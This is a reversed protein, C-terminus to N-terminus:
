SNQLNTFFDYLSSDASVNMKKKLRFKATCISRFTRCTLSAIEKSSLNMSILACLRLENPTLNPFAAELKPFFESNVQEFCLKFETWDKNPSFEKLLHEIENIIKTEKGKPSAYLNLKQIQEMINVTLENFKLFMLANSTLEKNKTELQKNFYEKIGELRIDEGEKSEALENKILKNLRYQRIIRQALIGLSIFSLVSLISLCVIWLNRYAIKKKALELNKENLKKEQLVKYNDFQYKLTLMKGESQEKKLINSLEYSKRLFHIADKYNGERELLQSELKLSNALIIDAKKTKPQNLLETNIKKAEAYQGQRYLANAYNNKIYPILHYANKKEALKLAAAFYQESLSYNKLENYVLALNFNAHILEKGEYKEALVIRYVEIFCDLAEKYQNSGMLAGGLNSYASSQGKLDGLKKYIDLSKKFYTAAIKRNGRFAFVTGIGNYAKAVGASNTDKGYLDVMRKFLVMAQEGEGHFVESFGLRYLADIHLNQWKTNNQNELIKEIKQISKNLSQIAEGYEGMNFLLEGYQVSYDLEAYENNTKKAYKIATLLLDKQQNIALSDKKLIKTYYSISDKTQALSIFFSLLCIFFLTKKM